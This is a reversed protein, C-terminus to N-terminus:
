PLSGATPPSLPDLPSVQEQLARALALDADVQSLSTFPTRPPTRTPEPAVGMAPEAEGEAAPPPNPNPSEDAIKDGAGSEKSDDM